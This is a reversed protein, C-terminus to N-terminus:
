YNKKKGGEVGIQAVRAKAREKKRRCKQSHPHERGEGISSRGMGKKETVASKGLIYVTRGDRKRKEARSSATVKKRGKRFFVRKKQACRKSGGEYNHRKERGRRRVSPGERVETKKERKGLDSMISPEKEQRAGKEKSNSSKHLSSEGKLGYPHAQQTSGKKGWSTSRGCERKEEPKKQRTPIPPTKKSRLEDSGEEGKESWIRRRKKKGGKLRIKM